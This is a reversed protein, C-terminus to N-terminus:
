WSEKGDQGDLCSEDDRNTISLIGDAGKLIVGGIIGSTDAVTRALGNVLDLNREVVKPADSAVDVVAKAAEVGTKFGM